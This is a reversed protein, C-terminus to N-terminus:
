CMSKADVPRLGVDASKKPPWVRPPLGVGGGQLAVQVEVLVPLDHSGRRSGLVARLVRRIGQM